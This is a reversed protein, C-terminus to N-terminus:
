SAQEYINMAMATLEDIKEYWRGPCDTSVVDCHGVVRIIKGYRQWLQAILEAVTEMDQQSCRPNCEIGISHMNHWQVGSHWAANELPMLCHVTKGSVVYHASVESAPNCLWGETGQFSSSEPGWHHIVIEQVDNQGPKGDPYGFNPSSKKVGVGLLAGVMVLALCVAVLRKM